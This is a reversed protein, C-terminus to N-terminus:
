GEKEWVARYLPSIHPDAGRLPRLLDYLRERQAEAPAAAAPSAQVRVFPAAANVLGRQVLRLCLAAAAGAGDAGMSEDFCGADFFVEERLMLCDPRLLLAARLCGSLWPLNEMLSRSLPPMALPRGDGDQAAAGVAGARPFRCLEMLAIPFGPTLMRTGPRLFLLYPCRAKRAGYNWLAAVGGRGLRRIEAARNARLIDYYRLTDPDRTGGDVVLIKYHPYLAYEEVSELLARLAPADDLSPVVIGVRAGRELPFRPRFTNACPGDVAYAKIGQRAFYANLAARGAAMDMHPLSKRSLLPRAIHLPKEARAACRLAYDYYAGETWARLGGAAEHLARSVLMPRGICNRSLLDLQTYPSKFHPDRRTGDAGCVDEDAYLLDPAMGQAEAACIASAFACFAAAELRDGAFLHLVYGGQPAEGAALVRANEYRALAEAAGKEAGPQAVVDMRPRCPGCAPIDQAQSSLWRAYRANFAPSAAHFLGEEADSPMDNKGKPFLAGIASVIRKLM